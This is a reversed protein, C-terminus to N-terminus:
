KEGEACRMAAAGDLPPHAFRLVLPRVEGRGAAAGRLVAVAEDYGLGRLEREGVAMLQPARCLPPHPPSRHRLWL